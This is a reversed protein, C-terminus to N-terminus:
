EGADDGGIYLSVNEKDVLTTGVPFYQSTNGFKEYEVLADVSYAGIQKTDVEMTAYVVGRDIANLISDSVYYGLIDVQGVKNYDVVTQYACVTSQENLCVLVDPMNSDMFLDRITEEEAFENSYDIPTFTIDIEVDSDKEVTEQITSRLLNQGYDTADVLVTVKMKRPGTVFYGADDYYGQNKDDKNMSHKMRKRAIEIIQRGYEIGLNYSGVSIYSCRKSNPNDNQVTVVMIGNKVAENILQTMEDTEDAAIIIGDVDSAIAIKMLEGKSYDQLLQNGMLDVYVNSQLGREYAGAYISQWYESQNDDAIMVYYQDYLDSSENEPISKAYDLLFSIAVGLVLIFVVMISFWIWKNDMKKKM